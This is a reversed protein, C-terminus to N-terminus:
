ETVYHSYHVKYFLKLLKVKGSSSAMQVDTLAIPLATYEPFFDLPIYICKFLYM